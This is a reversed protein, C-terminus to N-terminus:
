QQSRNNFTNMTTQIGYEIWCVVAERAREIGEKLLPREAETPKDLVYDEAWDKNSQGIGIRLRGIKETGLKEIVDTLGKHGGSSGKARIRIRGPELAMDDTILLLDDTNLKYFGVATAVVQGSCNMFRWPKLLILNTNAFEGTGLRGGFKRKSIKINLTEALLDIVHFGVNHRTDAYKNGPNGLGVVMKTLVM